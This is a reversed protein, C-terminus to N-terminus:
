HETLLVPRDQDSSLSPYCKAVILGVQAYLRRAVHNRTFVNLTASGTLGSLVSSLMQAAAGRRRPPTSARGGSHIQRTAALRVLADDYGAVVVRSAAPGLSAAAESTNLRCSRGLSSRQLALRM